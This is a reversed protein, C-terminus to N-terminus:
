QLWLIGAEANVAINLEKSVLRTQWQRLKDSNDMGESEPKKLNELLLTKASRSTALRETYETLM